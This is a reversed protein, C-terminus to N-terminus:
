GLDAIAQQRAQRRDGHLWARAYPHRAHRTAWSLKPTATVPAADALEGVKEQGAAEAARGQSIGTARAPAPTAESSPQRAALSKSQLTEGPDIEQAMAGAGAVVLLSAVLMQRVQM